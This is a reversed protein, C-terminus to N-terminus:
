CVVASGLGQNGNLTVFDLNVLFERLQVYM